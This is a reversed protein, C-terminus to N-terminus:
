HKSLAIRLLGRGEMRSGDKCLSCLTRLAEFGEAMGVEEELPLKWFWVYDELYLRVLNIVGEAARKDFRMSM